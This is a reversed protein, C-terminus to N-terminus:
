VGDRESVVFEARRLREAVASVIKEKGLNPGLGALNAVPPCGSPALCLENLRRLNTNLLLTGHVLLVRKTSRGAMGSVKNGGVEIRNPPVFRAEVRLTQLAEVVPASGLEFGAAPSLYRGATRIFFSWNLNGEDHYVVGGGTSRVYVPVGLSAALEENYWGYRPHRVRGRVLCETNVWFRVLEPLDGSDVRAFLADERGLNEAPDTAKDVLLQM